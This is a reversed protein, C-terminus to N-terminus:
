VNRAQSIKSKQRDYKARAFSNKTQQQWWRLMCCNLAAFLFQNMREENLLKQNILCLWV